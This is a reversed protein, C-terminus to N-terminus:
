VQPAALPGCIKGKNKGSCEMLDLPSAPKRSDKGESSERREEVRGTGGGGDVNLERSEKLKVKVSTDKSNGM